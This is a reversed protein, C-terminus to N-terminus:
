LVNIFSHRRRCAVFLAFVDPRSTLHREVSGRQERASIAKGVVGLLYTDDALDIILRETPLSIPRTGPSTFM